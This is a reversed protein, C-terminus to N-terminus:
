MPIHYEVDKGNSGRRVIIIDGDTYVNYEDKGHREEYVAKHIGTLQAIFKINAEM